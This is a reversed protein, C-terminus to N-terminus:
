IMYNVFGDILCVWISQVKCIYVNITYNPVTSLQRILSKNQKTTNKNPKEKEKRDTATLCNQFNKLKTPGDNLM